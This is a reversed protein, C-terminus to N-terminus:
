FKGRKEGDFIFQGHTPEKSLQRGLFDYYKGDKHITKEENIHTSTIWCQPHIEKCIEVWTNGLLNLYSIPMFTEWSIVWKEDTGNIFTTDGNFGYTYTSSDGETIFTKYDIEGQNDYDYETTDYDTRMGLFIGDPDYTFFTEGTSDNLYMPRLDDDFVYRHTWVTDWYTKLEVVSPWNGIRKDFSEYKTRYITDGKNITLFAYGDEMHVNSGDVYFMTRVSSFGCEDLEYYNFMTAGLDTNESRITQFDKDYAVEEGNFEVCEYFSYQNQAVSFLGIIVLAAIMLYKMNKIKM